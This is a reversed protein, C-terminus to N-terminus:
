GQLLLPGDGYRCQCTNRLAPYSFHRLGNSVASLGAEMPPPPWCLDRGTPFPNTAVNISLSALCEESQLMNQILIFLHELWFQTGQSTIFGRDMHIRSHWWTKCTESLVMHRADWPPGPALDIPPLLLRLALSTKPTPLM